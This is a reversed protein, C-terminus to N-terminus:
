KKRAAKKTPRKPASAAAPVDVPKDDDSATSTVPKDDDTDQEEVTSPKSRSVSAWGANVLSDAYGDEVTHIGPEHMVGDIKVPRNLNIRKM